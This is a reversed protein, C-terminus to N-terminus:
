NIKFQATAVKNDQFLIILRYDSSSGQEVTKLFKQLVAKDEKSTVTGLVAAESFQGKTLIIAKPGIANYIADCYERNAISLGMNNCNISKATLSNYVSSGRTYRTMFERFAGVQYVNDANNYSYLRQYSSNITSFQSYMYVLIGAITLSVLLTEVLMFGKTDFMRNKKM